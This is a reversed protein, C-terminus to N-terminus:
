VVRLLFVFRTTNESTPFFDSASRSPLVVNPRGAKPAFASGVSSFKASDIEFVQDASDCKPTTWDLVVEVDSLHGNQDQNATLM